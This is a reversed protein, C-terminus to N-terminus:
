KILAFRGVSENGNESEVHFIYVGFSVPFNDSTTLDWTEIGNEISGEHKLTRVLDGAMTYIKITCMAPLNAFYVRRPGRDRPNQLDLSEINSSVVYPNPVVYINDMNEKEVQNSETSATTSFTFIDDAFPRNTYISFVDGEIPPVNDSGASPEYFTLEWSAASIASDQLIIIREGPNWLSDTTITELIVFPLQKEPFGRTTEWVEFNAKVHEHGPRFNSSVLSSFWRIEYDAPYMNNPLNNFPKVWWTWNNASYENWSILDNDLELADNQVTITMGDFIPNGEEAALKVSNRIPFYRYSVVITQGETMSGGERVYIQGDSDLLDFDTGESYLYGNFSSVSFLNSDVNKHSLKSYQGMRVTITDSLEKQDLLSYNLQNGENSFIVQFSNEDELVTNDIIDVVVDGTGKGGIHEVGPDNISSAVYGATPAKPVIAITNVDLLVENTEPNVTITKSCEAPAVVLEADGHDYSVVAYYYTQGNVVNNSDVFVHRLGSNEGLNYKVGRGTFEISSLGFYDNILDFKASAGDVTKLPEFLFRSGNADTITQQDLFSPDTSRYIVYGEFDYTETIPDFSYEAIDDWYLTVKEDGPVATVNPKEPPKAFQYNKKYIDQATIANLTLDDYDQGVILAISFRRAEGAPLNIPGSSYIFIYDGAQVSNATDFVGATLYNEFIFQDNSIRNQSTFPPSAFGTLGVMDSEDLDTWDINPEGPLRLDFPDGPTPVGDDEGEDGTNPVGDIGVDHKEVNWDGDEDIGNDQSEDVMGDNDNDINDYPQGPSELFKYGFYGPVNGVVDSVNDADWCYVMNLDRDFYSLDDQWNSPGGVHPDGWMGFTVEELDKSSKNTVKYILFIIDEALPNAWQYYRCEIEIGLGRRASDASFPFYDFEKNNRDDVVFFSELDSNSSGQRLAGPWVYDKLNENYWGFPWSDPKGDGNRDLDNSTPINESLPDAYPVSLDDNFALPEWGYFETGDPSAEGGLSPLGDRIGRAYWTPDGQANVKPYADQHSASSVEVEACIFPGFEYGYGLGEWVIDTVRNGPSSISGYNWIETTIKNGNLIAKQRRLIQDDQNGSIRKLDIRDRWKFYREHDRQSWEKEPGNRYWELDKKFPWQAFVISCAFFIILIFKKRKVM